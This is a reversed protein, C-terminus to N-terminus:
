EKIKFKKEWDENDLLHELLNNNNDEQGGEGASKVFESHGLEDTDVTALFFYFVILKFLTVISFIM